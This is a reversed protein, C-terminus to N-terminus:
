QDLPDANTAGCSLCAGAQAFCAAHYIAGCGRCRRWPDNAKPGEDCLACISPEAKTEDDAKPAPLATGQASSAVITGLRGSVRVARELLRPSTTLGHLRLELYGGRVIVELAHADAERRVDILDVIADKMFRNAMAADDARVKVDGDVRQVPPYPVETVHEVERPAALVDWGFYFRQTNSSDPLAAIAVVRGDRESGYIGLLKLTVTTGDVEARFEPDAGGTSARGNVLQAADELVKTWRSRARSKQIARVAVGGAGLAAAGLLAWEIM